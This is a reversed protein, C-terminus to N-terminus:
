DDGRVIQCAPLGELMEVRSLAESRSIYIPPYFTCGHYIAWGTRSITVYYNTGTLYYISRGLNEIWVPKDSLDKITQEILRKDCENLM